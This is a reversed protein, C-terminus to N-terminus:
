KQVEELVDKADSLLESSTKICDYLKAIMGDLEKSVSAYNITIEEHNVGAAGELAADRDRYCNCIVRLKEGDRKVHIQDLRWYDATYGTTTTIEKSLGM